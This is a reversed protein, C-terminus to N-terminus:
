TSYVEMVRHEMACTLLRASFLGYVSAPLDPPACAYQHPMFTEYM